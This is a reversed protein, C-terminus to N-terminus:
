QLYSREYVVEIPGTVARRLITVHVRPIEGTQIATNIFNKANTTCVSEAGATPYCM